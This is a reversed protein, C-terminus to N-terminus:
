QFFYWGKINLEYRPLYFPDRLHDFVFKRYERFDFFLDNLTESEVRINSDPNLHSLTTQVRKETKSEM